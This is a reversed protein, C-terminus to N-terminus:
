HKVPRAASSVLAMVPLRPWVEQPKGFRQRLGPNEDLCRTSSTSVYLELLPPSFLSLSLPAKWYLTSPIISSPFYIHPSSASRGEDTVADHAM